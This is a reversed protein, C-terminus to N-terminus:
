LMSPIDGHSSFVRNVSLLHVKFILTANPPVNHVKMGKHGYALESLGILWDCLYPSYPPCTIEAVEGNRMLLLGEELGELARRSGLTTRFTKTKYPSILDIGDELSTTFYFL